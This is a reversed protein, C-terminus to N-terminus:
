GSLARAVALSGASCRLTSASSWCVSSRASSRMSWIMSWSMPESISSRRSRRVSTSSGRSISAPGPPESPDLEPTAVVAGTPELELRPPLEGASRTSSVGKSRRRVGAWIRGSMMPVPPALRLCISASVPQQTRRRPSPEPKISRLVSSSSCTGM